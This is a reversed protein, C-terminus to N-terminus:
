RASRFGLSSSRNGPNFNDRVASRLYIAGNYWSGGRIVRNSGAPYEWASGDTPAGSYSGHYWDQVWEWANGAMDCLGQQTNGASKSCVPATVSGCGLIVARECTVKANGWPYTQNKGASRAAYEWEAESPLRGGVWESFTKAQDWDVGVVPQDDSGYDQAASCAGADVCAKYQKNTVLTKAMWFSKITVGHAPWEDGKDSGMTFRGGPIAVWQIGAKGDVVRSRSGAAAGPVAAPASKALRALAEKITSAPMYKVLEAAAAPEIGPSELYAKAFHASWREKDKVGVVQLALLRSLKEWDSDRAAVRMLRAEEGARWKAAYRDWEAARKEALAAFEPVELALTRWSEAKEEPGAEGNDFESVADYKELADVDVGGLDLGAAASGLAKPAQARPVAPLNSASVQFDPSGGATAKAMAALDPGKEGASMGVVAGVKGMLDPTQNRGRLTADLAATTYRWVDGATLRDEKGAAWGRLAGLTLYSFAPRNAGPLAGAFQDGKAATLVVLRPDAGSVAAVTVLPQLGPVISAGDPGRGSFCADLIVSISGARSKALAAFLEQRKLSRKQISAAKQQVDVGVLLGDKGDVSPAGHGVFVFWLTGQPGVKSAAVEVADLMDDSTADVGLLLKVSSAAVGRTRTLYDYWAKANVEAGPVPPVFSYGEIGVM